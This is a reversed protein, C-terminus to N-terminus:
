RSLAQPPDPRAVSRYLPKGSARSLEEMVICHAQYGMPMGGHKEEVTIGLFGADGLKKWMESPFENNKDTKEALSEPIGRGAADAAQWRGLPNSVPSTACM